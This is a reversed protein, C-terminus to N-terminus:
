VSFSDKSSDVNYFGSATATAVNNALKSSGSVGFDIASALGTTFNIFQVSAFNAQPATMNDVTTYSTNATGNNVYYVTYYKGPSLSLSFSTNVTQSGSTFFQANDTGPKTAIYESSQGYVVASSTIKANNLYLDQAASGSVTNVVMVHAPPVSNNDNNKTCSSLVAISSIFLLTILTLRPKSKFTKM